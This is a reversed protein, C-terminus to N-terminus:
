WCPLILSHNYEEVIRGSTVIDADTDVMAEYLEEYMNPEIWDDSDVFGVYEGQMLDLADRRAM